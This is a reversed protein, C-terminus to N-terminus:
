DRLLFGDMFFEKLVKLIDNIYITFLLPGLVSGQPAGIEIEVVVQSVHNPIRIRQCM